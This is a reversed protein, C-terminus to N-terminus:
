TIIYPSFNSQVTGPLVCLGDGIPTVQFTKATNNRIDNHWKGGKNLHLPILDTEVLVHYGNKSKLILPIFTLISKFFSLLEEIDIITNKEIPDIDLVYYKKNSSEKHLYEEYMRIINLRGNDLLSDVIKRQLERAAKRVCRPNPQIYVTIHNQHIIEDNFTWKGLEIQLREIDSIMHKKSTIVKKFDYDKTIICGSTNYKKRAMLHILYKENSNADPLLDIFTQLVDYNTILQYNM